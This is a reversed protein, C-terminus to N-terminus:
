ASRASLAKQYVGNESFLDAVVNPWGGLFTIDWQDTVPPYKNSFEKLLARDVPRFSDTSFLRQGEKSQLFDILAQSVARTNHKDAYMDVVAAPNEILITSM